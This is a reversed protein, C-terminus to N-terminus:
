NLCYKQILIFLVTSEKNAGKICTSVNQYFHKTMKTKQLTVLTLSHGFLSIEIAKVKEIQIM